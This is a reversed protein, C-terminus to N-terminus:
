RLVVALHRAAYCCLGIGAATSPPLPLPLLLYECNYHHADYDTGSNHYHSHYHHHYHAIFYFSFCYCDVLRAALVALRHLILRCSDGVRSGQAKPGSVTAHHRFRSTSARRRHTQFPHFDADVRSLCPVTLNLLSKTTLLYAKAPRLHVRLGADPVLLHLFRLRFGAPRKRKLKM